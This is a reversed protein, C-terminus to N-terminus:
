PFIESIAGNEIRFTLFRYTDIAQGKREGPIWDQLEQCYALIQRSIDKHFAKPLYDKDLELSEFLGAKGECNVVFRIRILGSDKTNKPATYNKKFFKRIEYLGGKYRTGTYYYRDFRNHIDIYKNCLQFDNQKFSKDDFTSVAYKLTKIEGEVFSNLWLESANLKIIQSPYQPYGECNIHNGYRLLIPYNEFSKNEWCYSEYLNTKSDITKMLGSSGFYLIEEKNQWYKDQLLLAIEKSAAAYLDTPLAKQYYYKYHSGWVMNNANMHYVTKPISDNAIRLYSDDESWQQKNVVTTDENLWASYYLHDKGYYHAKLWPSYSQQDTQLAYPLWTGEITHNKKDSCSLLFALAIIATSTFKNKLNFIYKSIIYTFVNFPKVVFEIKNKLLIKKM